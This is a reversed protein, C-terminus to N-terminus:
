IKSRENLVDDIMLEGCAITIAESMKDLEDSTSFLGHAKMLGFAKVLQMAAERKTMKNRTGGILLDKLGRIM